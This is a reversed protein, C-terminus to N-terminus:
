AVSLFAINQFQGIRLKCAKYIDKYYMMRSTGDKIVEGIIHEILILNNLQNVTAEDRSDPNIGVAKNAMKSFNMYYKDANKSGNSKAYEVFAKIEDTELKRNKISELRTAQWRPSCHERIFAEMTNFAKIYEWKWEDAKKGTFGMVLFSFGDRNMFYLKNNKGSDDKYASAKFCQVCNQTSDNEIKTEIARVVDAHRKHFNAAIQLSTCVAEDNRILVLDEM